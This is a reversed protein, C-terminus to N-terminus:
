DQALNNIFDNKEVTKGLEFILIKSVSEMGSKKNKKAGKRPM